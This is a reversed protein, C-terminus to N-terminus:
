GGGTRELVGDPERQFRRNPWTGARGLLTLVAPTLLPRVVLTDLLLGVTMAFAIQRFTSLPIVAVLAFTGALIIGATTIAESTRPVSERMADRLTRTRAEHWISGVAFVNYDSGLAILLVASAFPAYFTLGQQGLFHQFVLVTLGLAAAVSLASCALLVLPALLARLYLVLILLEIALAVLLTVELSRRTLEAVEAAILTQGGVLVQTGPLGAQEVLGPLRQQLLRVDGVAKAALPDSDFAVVYRAATGDESLVLGRPRESPNDVPGLVRGVGPQEALSEQLRALADRRDTIGPQSVVIETPATLGRVGAEDLLLAGRAAADDSPLGATFSLDLRADRLPLASLVLLVLVVLCAAVAVGRRTLAVIFGTRRGDAQHARTVRGSTRVPLVTFLRWRLISMLAPTLTLCVAVAVLVTLALAPGLARFVGFPAALLAITGGAVTLGAVTVVPGYHALVSQVGPVGKSGQDLEDRYASFFLVCYDTVLGLLLAVLVPELQTPVDFHLRDALNSLLPFYVLYGTAAVGVVVLPALLSRFAWAVVLVILLLSALEFLGLRARLYDGQAVQSPVFGTVYTSSAAQNNFHAAYNKALRVTNHLGTGDTMFLYTVTTDPLGVPVPIAAAIEGPGPPVPAQLINQTTALAWLLSDARTLLPLGDPQHLVVTTGATVPVPFTKSIQAQVQLATSDDPLLDGFGGGTGGHAPILVNICIAAAVWFGVVVFRGRTVTARYVRGLWRAVAGVPGGGSGSAVTM